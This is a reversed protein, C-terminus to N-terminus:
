FLRVKAQRLLWRRILGLGIWFEDRGVDRDYTPAIRNWVPQTDFTNPDITNGADDRGAAKAAALASAKKKEAAVYYTVSVAGVYLLASGVLLPGLRIKPRADPLPPVHPPPPQPQVARAAPHPFPSRHKKAM